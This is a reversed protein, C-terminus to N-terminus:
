SLMISFEFYISFIWLRYFINIFYYSRHTIYINSIIVLCCFLKLSVKLPSNLIFLLSFTRSAKWSSKRAPGQILKLSQLSFNNGNSWCAWFGHLQDWKPSAALGLGMQQTSTELMFWLRCYDSSQGKENIETEVCETANVFSRKPNM